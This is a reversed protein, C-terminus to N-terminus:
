HQILIEYNGASTDLKKGSAAEPNWVSHLFLLLVSWVTNLWYYRLHVHIWFIDLKKETERKVYWMTVPNEANSLTWTSIGYLTQFFYSWLPCVIGKMFVVIWVKYCHRGWLVFLIAIMETSLTCWVSWCNICVSHCLWRNEKRFFLCYVSQCNFWLHPTFFEFKREWGGDNICAMSINSQEQM